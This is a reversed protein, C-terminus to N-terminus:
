DTSATTADEPQRRFRRYSWQYQAPCRRVIQEVGANLAALATAPDAADLGEPAPLYRLHFGRGNPLREAFGFFAPAGTRQMLSHVLTLTYAPHGFFPAFAGEGVAPEQDPLIVALENRRLALLLAKVGQRNAPVLATGTRSRAQTILTEFAPERPPRYLATTPLQQATYLGGFEWSGSHPVLLIAGRGAARAAHIADLGEVTVVWHAIDAWPARWVAGMEVLTKGAEILSDRALQAQADASLEPLCRHINDLSIRWLSGGQAATLRGLLSGVRHAAPLSLWSFGRLAARLLLARLRSRWPRDTRQAHTRPPPAAATM